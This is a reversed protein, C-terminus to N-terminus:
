DEALAGRLSFSFLYGLIPFEKKVEPMVQARKKEFTLFV